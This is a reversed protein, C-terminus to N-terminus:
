PRYCYLSTPIKSSLAGLLLEPAAYQRRCQAEIDVTEVRGGVVCYWTDAAGPIGAPLFTRAEAGEGHQATCAQQAAVPGIMTSSRSFTHSYDWVTGEVTVRSMKSKDLGSGMVWAWKFDPMLIQVEVAVRQDDAFEWTRDFPATIEKWDKPSGDIVV